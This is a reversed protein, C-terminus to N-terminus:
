DTTEVRYGPRDVAPFFKTVRAPKAQKLGLRVRKSRLGSLQLAFDSTSTGFWCEILGLVAEDTWDKLPPLKVFDRELDPSWGHWNLLLFWDVPAFIPKRKRSIGRMLQEFFDLDNREAFAGLIRAYPKLEARPRASLKGVLIDLVLERAVGRVDKAEGKSNTQRLHRIGIAAVLTEVTRAAAGDGGVGELVLVGPDQIELALSVVLQLAIDVAPIKGDSERKQARFFAGSGQKEKGDTSGAPAEEGGGPSLPDDIM